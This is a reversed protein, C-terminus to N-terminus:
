LKKLSSNTVWFPGILVRTTFKRNHDQMLSARQIGLVPFHFNMGKICDHSVNTKDFEERAVPNSVQGM